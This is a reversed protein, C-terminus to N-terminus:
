FIVINGRSRRSIRKLRPRDLRNIDKELVNMIDSFLDMDIPKIIAGLMGSEKFSKIAEDSKDGTYAFVMSTNSYDDKIIKTVEDGNIDDIHYDMFIIDYENDLCRSVCRIGEDLTAVNHGRMKLIKAFYKSAEVDDDVILINLIKSKSRIQDNPNLSRNM